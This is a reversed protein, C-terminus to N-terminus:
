PTTEEYFGDIRVLAYGGVTETTVALRYPRDAEQRITLTAMDSRAGGDFTAVIAGKIRCDECNPDKGCGLESYSHICGFVQGGRHAEVEGLQKGFLSLARDNATFVQRPDSQMLLVPAGLCQLIKRCEQQNSTRALTELCGDCIATSVPRSIALALPGGCVGCSHKIM